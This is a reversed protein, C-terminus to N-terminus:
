KWLGGRWTWLYWANFHKLLDVKM